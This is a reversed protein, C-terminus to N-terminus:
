RGFNGWRITSAGTVGNGLERCRIPAREGRCAQIWDGAVAKFFLHGLAGNKLCLMMRRGEMMVEREDDDGGCNRQALLLLQTKYYYEEVRRASQQQQEYSLSAM